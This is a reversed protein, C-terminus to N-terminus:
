ADSVDGLRIEVCNVVAGSAREFRVHMGCGPCPQRSRGDFVQPRAYSTGRLDRARGSLQIPEAPRFLNPVAGPRGPFELRSVQDKNNWVERQFTARAVVANKDESLKTTVAIRIKQNRDWVPDARGGSVAVLAALFLQGAVQGAEVASRDKSGVLLGMGPAAEDISFGSDQLVGASATLLATENTTDFRRMQQQRKSLNDVPLTLAAIQQQIPTPACAALIAALM